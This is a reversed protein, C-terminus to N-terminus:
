GPAPESRRSVSEAYAKPRYRLIPDDSLTIGDVTRAPDFVVPGGGVEPDPAVGTVVIRGALLERADRWKSTIRHPDHGEGAITVWLEHTVPGLALRAAMEESLRDSGTFTESLRDAKTAIPRLEYRVWTRRDEADHWGYAHLPYFMTEAFSHHAKVGKLGPLIRRAIDPHRLLWFPLTKKNVSAEAIQVFEEPDDTPFDPSTQGLLDFAAGDDGKFKVGMGRIDAVTDKSHGHGSASSWRVVVPREQGDLHSARCLGAVEPTATFTADYFQGKAHLTRHAPPGGFAARLRDIALKPDLDM